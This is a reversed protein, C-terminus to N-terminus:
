GSAAKPMSKGSLMDCFAGTVDKTRLGLTCLLTKLTSYARAGDENKSCQSVKRAMVAPRLGREALNNTPSVEPNKLFLTVQGLRYAKGIGDILCQTDADKVSRERLHERIKVDLQQGQSLYQDLEMKGEAQKSWLAIGEKLLEKLQQGFCRGRGVKGKLRADINRLLHCLCKQFKVDDFRKSGYNSGRDTCLVHAFGEGLVEIVEQARHQFRVQFFMVTRTFFGMMFSGQGDTRWGTDDTHVVPSERLETRLAEYSAHLHTGQATLSLAWQTVASQTIRIGTTQELVAPVRRLPLGHLYHLILAQAKVRLGIQHAAVGHQHAGLKAHRGRLVKGCVPCRGVEVKFREIQRVPQPPVDVTTCEEDSTELPVKCDPCVRHAIDLPVDIDSVQDDERLQPSERKSFPGQGQKRGPKKRQLKRTGKSFPAKSSHRERLEAQLVTVKAELADFRDWLDLLADVLEEKSLAELQQRTPRPVPV